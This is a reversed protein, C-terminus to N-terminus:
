TILAISRIFQLSVCTVLERALEHALENSVPQNMVSVSQPAQMRVDMAERRFVNTIDYIIVCDMQARLKFRTTVNRAFSGDRLTRSGEYLTWSGEHLM